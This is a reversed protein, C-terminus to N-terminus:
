SASRRAAKRRQLQAQDRRPIQPSLFRPFYDDLARLDFFFPLKYQLGLLPEWLFLFDLFSIGKGFEPFVRSQHFHSLLPDVLPSHNGVIKLVPLPTLSSPLDVSLFRFLRRLFFLPFQLRNM